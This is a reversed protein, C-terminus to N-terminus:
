KHEKQIKQSAAHAKAKVAAILDAPSWPKDGAVDFETAEVGSAAYFADALKGEAEAEVQQMEEKLRPILASLEDAYKERMMYYARKGFDKLEEIASM